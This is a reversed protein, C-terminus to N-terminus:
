SASARLVDASSRRQAEGDAEHGNGQGDMTPVVATAAPMGEASDTDSRKANAYTDVYEQGTLSRIEYMVEDTIQRLILRDDARDRYRTVDIPRGFRVRMMDFMKPMSRDPPQVEATGQLGCPIIPAGTRLALRAVGTHGRHLNGDRSRTGEPYIGFLEGSELLRAAASLARDAKSGGGRDIPIMGLAPFIYRTKWSDMYEAKGVYTIRRPLAAGVVFHDIVSLHNPAVIAGGSTPINETGEVEIRWAFSFAPRLVMKAVSYLQGVERGM